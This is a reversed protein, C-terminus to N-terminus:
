GRLRPFDPPGALALLSLLSVPFEFDRCCKNTQGTPAPKPRLFFRLRNDM